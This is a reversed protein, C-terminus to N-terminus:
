RAGGEGGGDGGAGGSTQNGMGGDSVGGQGGGGEGGSASQGCRVPPEGPFFPAADVCGLGLQALSIVGGGTTVRNLMVGCSGDPRCCGLLPDFMLPTSMGPIATSNSSPCAGDLEGPENKLACSSGTGTAAIFTTDIGCQDRNEGGCCPDVYYSLTAVGLTASSCNGGCEITKPMDSIGPPLMLAGAAGASASRGAGGGSKGGAGAGAGAVGGAGAASSPAAASGSAGGTGRAAPVSGQKRDSSGCGFPLVFSLVSGVLTISRSFSFRL